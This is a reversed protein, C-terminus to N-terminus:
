VKIQKDVGKKGPWFLCLCMALGLLGFAGYCRDILWSFDLWAFPLCGVCLLLVQKRGDGALVHGSGAGTTLIAGLLVLTYLRVMRPGGLQALYLVPIDLAAIEGRFAALAGCLVLLCLGLMCACLLATRRQQVPDPLLKGCDALLSVALISNYGFYLLAACLAGQAGLWQQGQGFVATDRTVLAYVCLLLIGATMLPTFLSFLADMGERGGMLVWAMVVVYIIVGIWSPVDWLQHLLAGMSSGMVGFVAFLFLFFLGFFLNGLIPGCVQQLLQRMDGCRDRTSWTLVRRCLLWTLVTVLLVGCMGQTGYQAFYHYVERGTAFGAGIIGGLFLNAAVFPAKWNREM